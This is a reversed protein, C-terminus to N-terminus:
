LAEAATIAAKLARSDWALFARPCSHGCPMRKLALAIARRQTYPLGQKRLAAVAAAELHSHAAAASDKYDM